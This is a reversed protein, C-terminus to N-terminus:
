NTRYGGLVSCFAMRRQAVRYRTARRPAPVQWPAAWSQRAANWEGEGECVPWVIVPVGLDLGTPQRSFTM